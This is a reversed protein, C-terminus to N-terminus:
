ENIGWRNSRNFCDESRQFALGLPAPARAALPLVRAVMSLLAAGTFPKPLVTAPQLWQNHTLESEVFGGSAIIVPLALQASRLKRVLEIGSMGPMRNDTILLGYSHAQLAEWAAESEQVTNVQYGARVLVGTSLQRMASDDELLLIAAPGSPEPGVAAALPPPAAHPTPAFFGLGAAAAAASLFQFRPSDPADADDAPGLLAVLAAARGRKQSLCSRVWDQVAAPLDAKSSTSIILLDAQLAPHTAEARWEAVDLIDFRWLLPCLETREGEAHAVDDLLHLARRGAPVDGYAIVVSLGAKTESNSSSALVAEMAGNIVSTIM